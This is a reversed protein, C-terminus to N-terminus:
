ASVQSTGLTCALQSELLMNDINDIDIDIDNQYQVINVENLSHYMYKCTHIYSPLVFVVQDWVSKLIYGIQM